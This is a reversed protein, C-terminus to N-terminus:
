TQLHLPTKKFKLQLLRNFISAEGEKRGKEIGRLEGEEMWKQALTPM